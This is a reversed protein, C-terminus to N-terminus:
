TCTTSWSVSPMITVTSNRRGIGQPLVHAPAARVRAGRRRARRPFGRAPAAAREEYASTLPSSTPAARLAAVADDRAIGAQRLVSAVRAHAYQVYYVPIRRPSRARSTSTSRSSALRGQAVVLFFRVADRGVEDILDRLTVYSGARKSIKVEEGGRMVTVMKHLVYDPYGAPIGMGSRRCGPACARSRATITRARCTSRARSAASAVQDRSVRRRARLVHLQRRVQADRPGQRRRLRDHAAVARWGARLDHGIRRAAAVTADVRGDTYLSSELYYNDFRVGFARLDRDQEQRLEAVAFRRITEIDASTTASRTSIASRSSAFTNAATATRPFRRTSEGLLEKRARACRSRSTRSRRARTTTTSSARSTAARGSSCRRSRTAWRAGAPRPRRAASRDSQRLRVRRHRARGARSARPRLGDGEALIRPSWRRGRPAPTLRLTSSDPARSKAREVVDAVADAAVIRDGARARAPQAAGAQRAHLAVNTAYDGHSRSAVPARHRVPRRLRAPCAARARHAPRTRAIRQRPNACDRARRRPVFRMLASNHRSGVRPRLAARPTLVGVPDVDLTWRVSRDPSRRGAGRALAAPVGAARARERASSSCRGASTARRPAGAGGAGAPLGRRRGARDALAHARQSARRRSLSRRRRAFAGGCRAARRARVAAAAGGRARRAARRRVRRLRADGARSLGSARSFRDARDGRGPLGARGARGAVQMLLAVLRETARFDASYLANDAGLVGVLTLRPFDHGKALMQTGVLIDVERDEVQQASPPSPAATARTRTAISARSRAGASVGNADGARPAAHRLGAACTSTAASRAHARRAREVHACHHCRLRDPTAISSWARRAARANRKGAARRACSRRRSAAATSSCCRSSARARAAARDRRAAARRPRGATRSGRMPVFAIAPPAARPDARARCRWRATAARRACAGLTELSPTASGLVIPMGRKRARLDRRRARPLPRRGAAQVFRRAGRRRRGARAAADAHVRCTANRARNARRREGRCGLERPADGAALGSHLTVASRGPLAARVRLEFQPTLNIEPMLILVQGGRPM